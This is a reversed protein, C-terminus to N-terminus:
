KRAEKAKRAAMERQVAQWQQYQTRATFYAIGQVVCAALVDKRQSGPMSDAIHWVQKCPRTITSAGHLDRKDEATLRTTAPQRHKYAWTKIESVIKAPLTAELAAIFDKAAPINNLQPAKM